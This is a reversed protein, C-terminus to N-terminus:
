AGGCMTLSDGEGNWGHLMNAIDNVYSATGYQIQDLNGSPDVSGSNYCRMATYINGPSPNNTWSMAPGANIYGVLGNNPQTGMIGQGIMEYISQKPDQSNLGTSGHPGQLLGCNYGATCPVHIDGGSEQMIMALIIRRDVKAVASVQNIGEKIWENEQESNPMMPSFKEWLLDFKAWQEMSPESGVEGGYCTVSTDLTSVGSTESAEYWQLGKPNTVSANCSPARSTIIGAPFASALPLATLLGAVITQTYM